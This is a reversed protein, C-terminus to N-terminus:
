TSFSALKMTSLRESAIDDLYNELGDDNLGNLETAFVQDRTSIHSANLAFMMRRNEVLVSPETSESSIGTQQLENQTLPLELPASGVTVSVTATDTQLDFVYAAGSNNASRNDLWSGVVAVDGSLGVGIGYQDATTVADNVLVRTQDWTGGVNEFLYARGSASGGGDAQPAGAVLHNGRLAISTAFRDGANGDGALLKTVQGWNDAGGQDQAFLYVSGLQNSGGEDDLPSGVAVTTGDISVSFGFHDSASADAAEIAKVEGWNSVGGQDRAFVYVAGTDTGVGDHRFAGVAILDTDISVSQGLRDGFAQTSGILKKVQGWNDIGGQDRDFVYAAGSVSGVPDATSAGVVITDGSIDVSRGFLDRKVTDTGVIKTVRGWNDVGGEHRGFVYAAGSRFGIDRDYQASVVVTDGDIAVSWGFQSQADDPNLDGNLQAVQTWATLGTRQYIFASGANTLSGPDDLYAGVVAFDGDVDVSYGFRDGGSSAGNILEVDKLAITYDFSDPGNFGIDPTYTLTGNGNEVVTGSGAGGHDVVMVESTPLDNGLVSVTISTGEDTVVSDDVADILSAVATFVLEYADDESTGLVVDGTGNVADFSSNPSRTVAVYFTGTSPATFQLYSENAGFEPAPGVDDDSMGVQNGTSDFVRLVSDLSGNPLDIDIDFADGSSTAFSYVDVDTEGGLLTEIEGITTGPLLATAESIQDDDDSETPFYLEAGFEDTTGVAFLKNGAGHIVSIPPSNSSADSIREAAQDSQDVRWVGNGFTGDVAVFYLVGGVNTLSNAFSSSTGPAVDTILSTGAATGDSTWVEFGSLGDNAVFYLRGNVITMKSPNSGSSGVAIDSVLSTGSFSGDSEWLESGSSGNNAAFYLTGDLNILNSPNSGASGSNIDRVMSTGSTTGNSKWLELGNVGNVARFFLTGNVNTLSRLYSNVPGPLIDRILSTGGATGNSSWLEIGTSGDNAGFFLTGNVDTLLEPYSSASGVRIDSVLTTGAATGDSKWLERGSIGDNASFYLTGGVNTLHYPNSGFVGAQVDAVQVTGGATGDSTWLETGNTGDNARFYLAGNVNTLYRPDSTDPGPRIDRVISTGAVTGDSRWLETGNTGDNATFYLTGNVDIFKQAYSGSTGGRIDALLNTGAFSGDSSWLERGTTGDNASFYLKGGASTLAHINAGQSGVRIEKVITTGASTGDTTWLEAGNVGDDAEFYLVGGFETLNDLSSSSTGPRINKVLSTGAASGDSTWLETGNTSDFASFYIAGGVNSLKNPSSSGVGSVIDSVLNTGVATGDSTWLERGSANEYASFYIAGGVNTLNIPSSGASGARIDSVLNTGADTGDSTWLERGNIGDDASFYLTGGIETLQQPYSGSTGFRIDSVKTTGSFTGDSTWLENGNISESAQFFLTGGVNTLDSPYSSSSGGIIDIVINTGAATGDSTWLENGSFSDGASFFLTGDVNTLQSPYSAYNGIYIDKVLSTGATTGDSRWVETGHVGDDATFFLTGSVNVMNYLNSGQTGPQIDAVFSTGATTGDTKWLERGSEITEATFFTTSGVETFNRPESGAGTLTPNLDGLFGFDFALLRRQELPEIRLAARSKRKLTRKRTNSKVAQQRSM